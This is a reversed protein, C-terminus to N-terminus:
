PAAPSGAARAPRPAAAPSGTPRLADRSPLVALAALWLLAAVAFGVRGEGSMGFTLGVLPTGALVVANAATNVLGVATAPADPRSQAAATFAPSFPIGAAVGVLAAGVATLWVPEAAVLAVAGAAGGLLSAAVAPRIADPHTRQIWGGLPRTVIVLLLTLSGILGATEHSATGHRQLLEVTWNGVVVSVGYSASYLLALRVLRRDRLLTATRPRRQRAVPPATGPAIWLVAALVVLALALSTWFPARWGLGDAALPVLALALGASGLGLGGFLGQAFPSGGSRQVLASGAIFALGTGLGSVARGTVALAPEPALLAICGGAAILGLAVVGSRVPGFRDSARGGPVQVATHTVILATTFLGVVALSVGYADAMQSPM